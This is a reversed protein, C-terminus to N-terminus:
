FTDLEKIFESKEMIEFGEKYQRTGTEIKLSDNNIIGAVLISIGENTLKCGKLWKNAKNKTKGSPLFGIFGEINITIREIEGQISGAENVPFVSKEIATSNYDDVIKAFKEQTVYYKLVKPGITKGILSTRNIGIFILFSLLILVAMKKV